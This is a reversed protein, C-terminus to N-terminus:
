RKNESHFCHLSVASAFDTLRIITRFVIFLQQVILLMMVGLFHTDSIRGAVAFYVFFGFLSMFVLSLSLLLTDDWQLACFRLSGWLARRVQRVKKRVLIIRAYDYVMLWLLVASLRLGTKIWGLYWAIPALPTKGFVLRPLLMLLEVTILFIALVPLSALFLRLFRFFFRGAGGWFLKASFKKRGTYLRLAGGSLFIQGLWFFVALVIWFYVMVGLGSGAYQFFEILLNAPLGDRLGAGLLSPGTVRNLILRLPWIMSVATLLSFLYFLVILRRHRWVRGLGSWLFNLIMFRDM